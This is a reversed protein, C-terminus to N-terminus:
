DFLKGYASKKAPKANFNFGLKSQKEPKKAFNGVQKMHAAFLLDCKVKIEDVSFEASSEVLKKFDDSERIDDYEACGFVEDKQAKIEAADYQDKFEKLAAYDSKLSAIADKEAQTLWESFVEVKEEGLSVNDGDVSYSRKFFKNEEYDQYIFDNDFVEVIWPWFDNETALLAYIGDRIDEHSIEWTLTVTGDETVAYQRKSPKEDDVAGEDSPTPDDVPDVEPEPDADPEVGDNDGEGDGADGGADDGADDGGDDDFKTSFASDLEEDTLNEYEFDIEEVTVGYKELLEEFHNMEEKVGEKQNEISFESLKKNLNDLAELLKIQISEDLNFMSNNNENFSDITIKSGKMGEEIQTVGDQEYGLITVGRFTFADISLYDEDANWSMEDIAIEVSCKCTKRRQLIEAAHSYDEFINGSVMLYTKDEDKNYELYPEEIESIVGVPQEVYELEGDEDIAIDHSRFEYEGTDTKYIAGLIPRGKFSNMNKKMVDESIGSNNRNRGIHCSMLQVPLLGNKSNDNVKFTEISQIVLPGNHEKSSFKAFNNTKCFDYLDDITYFKRM